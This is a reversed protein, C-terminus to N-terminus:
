DSVRSRPSHHEPFMSVPNLHRMLLISAHMRLFVNHSALYTNTGTPSKGSYGAGTRGSARRRLRLTRVAGLEGIYWNDLVLGDIRGPLANWSIHLPRGGFTDQFLKTSSTRLARTAKSPKPTRCRCTTTSTRWRTARTPAPIGSWAKIAVSDPGLARGLLTLARPALGPTVPANLAITPTSLRGPFSARNLGGITGTNSNVQWARIGHISASAAGSTPNGNYIFLYDGTATAGGTSPLASVRLLDDPSVPISMASRSRAVRALCLDRVPLRDREASGQVSCRHEHRRHVLLRPWSRGYRHEGDRDIPIQDLMGSGDSNILAELGQMAQDLSNKM